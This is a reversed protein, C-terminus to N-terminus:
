GPERTCTSASARGNCTPRLNVDTFDNMSFGAAIEGRPTDIGPTLSFDETQASAIGTFALTALVVASIRIRM